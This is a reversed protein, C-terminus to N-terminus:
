DMQNEVISASLSRKARMSINLQGLDDSIYGMDDDETDLRNNRQNKMKKKKKKKKKNRSTTDTCDSFYDEDMTINELLNIHTEKYNRKREDENEYARLVFDGNRKMKIESMREKDKEKEDINAEFKALNQGFNRKVSTNVNSGVKMSAPRPPAQKLGGKPKPPRPPISPTSPTGPTKNGGKPPPKSPRPPPPKTNRKLNGNGNNNGGRPPPPKSSRVPPSKHGTPHYGSESTESQSTTIKPNKSPFKNGNEKEKEKEKEETIIEDLKIQARRGNKSNKNRENMTYLRDSQSQGKSKHQKKNKSNNNNNNNNNYVMNPADFGNQAQRPSDASGPPPTVAYPVKPPPENIIDNRTKESSTNIHLSKSANLRTAGNGTKKSKDKHKHKHKKKKDKKNATAAVNKNYQALAGRGGVGAGGRRMTMASATHNSKGMAWVWKKKEKNFHASQMRNMYNVCIQYFPINGNDEIDDINVNIRQEVNKSNKFADVYKYSGGIISPCQDSTIIEDYFKKRDIVYMREKMKKNLFPKVLKLIKNMISPADIMYMAKVRLPYVNQMVDIFLKQLNLSFNHMGMDSMDAVFLMGTRAVALDETTLNLIMLFAKLLVAFNEYAEPFFKSACIAFIRYGESDYGGFAMCKSVIINVDFNCNKM